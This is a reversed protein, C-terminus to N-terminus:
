SISKRRDNIVIQNKIKRLLFLHSIFVILVFLITISDSFFSDAAKKVQVKIETAKFEEWNKKLEVESPFPVKQDKYISLKM